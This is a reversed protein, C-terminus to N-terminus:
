FYMFVLVRVNCKKVNLNFRANMIVTVIIKGSNLRQMATAPVTFILSVTNFIPKNTFLRFVSSNAFVNKGYVCETLLIYKVFKSITITTM